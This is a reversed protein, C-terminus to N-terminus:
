NYLFESWDPYIESKNRLITTHTYISLKTPKVALKMGAEEPTRDAKFANCRKCAAVLNDWKSSGGRSKPIIHDITLTRESHKEKCYQCTNKDRILINKKSLKNNRTPLKHFNILRIVSPLIFESSISKWVQESYKEAVAVGRYILKIAKKVSTTQIPLYQSNLVLVSLM